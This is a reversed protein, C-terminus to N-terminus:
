RKLRSSAHSRSERRRYWSQGGDATTAAKRVTWLVPPSEINLLGLPVVTLRSSDSGHNIIVYSHTIETIHAPGSEVKFEAGSDTYVLVGSKNMVQEMHGKYVM